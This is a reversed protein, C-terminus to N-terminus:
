EVKDRAVLVRVLGGATYGKDYYATLTYATLDSVASLDTEYFNGSKVYYVQVDDAFVYKRSGAQLSLQTIATVSAPYLSEIDELSGDDDYDFRAGGTTADYEEYDVTQANEMGDIRYEFTESVVESTVSGDEGTVDVENEEVSTVVGYTYLDGTVNNLILYQIEKKENFGVTLIDTNKLISGDLRSAYIVKYQGDDDVDLIEVDTAVSYGGLKNAADDYLGSVTQRQADIIETAGNVYSVSVVDGVNVLTGAYTYEREVGDTCAIVATQAIRSKGNDDQYTLVDKGVVVGYRVEDIEDAAVVDVVTDEEGLLLAVSDGVGFTGTVSFAAIAKKTELTYTEGAVTVSTPDAKNPAVATCIGIAKDSYAWITKSVENYYIVDYQSVAYVTSEKGDRYITAGSTKFPLSSMWTGDEVVLPGETEDAVLQDYDIVGADDMVYGFSEAYITGESTEAGMLNYFLNMCDERTLYQGRTAEVNADLDLDIYKTLQATPYTGNLNTSDYGLLRLVMAAGEELTVYQDPKFSGDMYGMIWGQQVALKIFGAAWHTYKVDKFLSTSSAADTSDKYSSAAVLMKAFQARTVRADLNMNGDEDGNMIGLFRVTKEVTESSQAARVELTSTGFIVCASLLVAMLRKKNM